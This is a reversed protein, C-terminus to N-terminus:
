QNDLVTQSVPQPSSVVELASVEIWREWLPPWNTVSPFRVFATFVGDERAEETDADIVMGIHGVISKRDDEDEPAGEWPEPVSVVKVYDGIKLPKAYPITEELEIELKDIESLLYMADDQCVGNDRIRRRIQEIRESAM